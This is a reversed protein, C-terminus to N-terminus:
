GIILSVLALGLGFLYDFGIPLGGSSSPEAADTKKSSPSASANTAQPPLVSDPREGSCASVSCPVQQPLGVAVDSNSVAISCTTGIDLADATFNFVAVGNSDTEPSGSYEKKNVSDVLLVSLSKGVVPQGTSDMVLATISGNPCAETAQYTVNYMKAPSSDSPDVTSSDATTNWQYMTPPCEEMAAPADPYDYVASVYPGGVCAGAEMCDEFYQKNTWGCGGDKGAVTLRCMKGGEDIDTFSCCSGYFDNAAIVEACPETWDEIHTGITISAAGESFDAVLAFLLLTALQSTKMNTENKHAEQNGFQSNPLFPGPVLLWHSEEGLLFREIVPTGRAALLALLEGLGTTRAPVCTSAPSNNIRPRHMEPAVSNWLRDSLTSYSANPFGM